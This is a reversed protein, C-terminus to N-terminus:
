LSAACKVWRGALAYTDFICTGRYCYGWAKFDDHTEIRIDEAFNAKVGEYPDGMFIVDDAVKASLVVPFGFCSYNGDAGMVVAPFKDDRLSYVRNWFTKHNMVMKANAAYAAPIYSIAEIIEAATPAASAWDVANTGDVWTEAANIGHGAVTSGGDGNIIENEIEIAMSRAINNALWDEFAPIAMRKVTASIELLKVIEKGNLQIRTVTDSAPTIAGAETHVAAANVTGEVPLVLYNPVHLVDVLSLMPALKTLNEIIKNNTTTPIAYGASTTQSDMAGREEVNLTEPKDGRMTKLWASRYEPSEVTYVKKEMAKNSEKEEAAFDKIVKGMTKVKEETQKAREATELISAREEYLADAEAALANVDAGDTRIEEGIEAARKEIDDLRAM